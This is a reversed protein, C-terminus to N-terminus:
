KFSKRLYTDLPICDDSDDTSSLRECISEATDSEPFKSHDGCKRLIEVCDTRWSLFICFTVNIEMQVWQLVYTTVLLLPLTLAM